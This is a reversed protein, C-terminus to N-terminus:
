NNFIGRNTTWRNQQPARQDYIVIKSSLNRCEVNLFCFFAMTLQEHDCAISWSVKSKSQVDAVRFRWPNFYVGDCWCSLIDSILTLDHLLILPGVKAKVKESEYRRGTVLTQYSVCLRTSSFTVCQRFELCTYQIVTYISILSLTGPWFTSGFRFTIIELLCGRKWPDLKVNWKWRREVRLNGSWLVRM